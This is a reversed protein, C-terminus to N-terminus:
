FMTPPHIGTKDLEQSATAESSELSPSPLSPLEPQVGFLMAFLQVAGGVLVGVLTCGLIIGLSILVLTPVSSSAHWSFVYIVIVTFAGFGGMQLGAVSGQALYNRGIDGSSSSASPLSRLEAQPAAYPNEDAPLNPVSM